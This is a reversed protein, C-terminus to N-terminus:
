LAASGYADTPFLFVPALLGKAKQGTYM